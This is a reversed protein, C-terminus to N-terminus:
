KFKWGSFLGLGQRQNALTLVASNTQLVGGAAALDVVAAAVALVFDPSNRRGAASWRRGDDNWDEQDDDDNQRCDSEVDVPSSLLFRLNNWKILKLSSKFFRKNDSDVKSCGSVQLKSKLDTSLKIQLFFLFVFLVVPAKLSNIM